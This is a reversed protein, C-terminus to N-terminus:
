SLWSLDLQILQGNTYAPLDYFARPDLGQRTAEIVLGVGSHSVMLSDSPEKDKYDRLFAVVREQFAFVDEAEQASVLKESSIGAYPSGTLSGMDYETIRNDVIILDDAMGVVRAVEKATNHARQLGSTVIRAINASKLELGAQSAQELGIETLPSDDRQGAFIAKRNAEAQGHALFYISM